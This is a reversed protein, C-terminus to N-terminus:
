SGIIRCVTLEDDFTCEFLTADEVALVKFEPFSDLIEALHGIALAKDISVTPVVRSDWFIVLRGSVNAHSAIAATLSERDVQGRELILAANVEEWVIEGRSSRPFKRVTASEIENSEAESLLTIADNASGWGIPRDSGAPNM